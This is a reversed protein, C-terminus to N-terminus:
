RVTNFARACDKARGALTLDDALFPMTVGTHLHRIKKALPLMGLAYHFMSEPAGQVVGEKSLIIYPTGGAVRIVMRVHHRYMNLTFRAMSAWVHRVTWMLALRNQNNFGDTADVPLSIPPGNNHTTGQHREQEQHDDDSGEYDIGEEEEAEAVDVNGFDNGDFVAAIEGVTPIASAATEVATTMMGRLAMVADGMM